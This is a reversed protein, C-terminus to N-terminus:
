PGSGRELREGLARDDLADHPELFLRLRKTRNGAGKAGPARGVKAQEASMWKRIAGADVIAVPYTMGGLRREALPLTTTDRSEVVVDALQFGAECLRILLLELGSAYDATREAESGRAAIPRSRGSVITRTSSLATYWREPATSRIACCSSQGQLM